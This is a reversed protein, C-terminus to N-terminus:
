DGVVRGPRAVHARQSASDHPRSEALVDEDTRRSRRIDALHREREIARRKCSIAGRREVKGVRRGTPRTAPALQVGQRELRVQQRQAVMSDSGRRQHSVTGADHEVGRERDGVGRWVAEDHRCCPITRQGRRETTRRERTLPENEEPRRGVRDGSKTSDGEAEVASRDGEVRRYRVVREACTASYWDSEIGAPKPIAVVLHDGGDLQGASTSHGVHGVESHGVLLRAAPRCRGVRSAARSGDSVRDDDGDIRGLGMLALAIEYSSGDATAVRLATDFSQRAEEIRGAQLLARATYRALTAAVVPTGGLNALAKAAEDAAALAAVTDGALVRVEVLRVLSDVVLDDSRLRRFGRLAEEQLQLAEDVRGQWLAIRSLGSITTLTGHPYNAAETVRRARTLLERAADLHFQLTLIEALNNDALAAGLVDGAREYYHSSSRFDDVADNTRNEGWASIGRNLFLNALGISDDLDTLLDMAAREHEARESQGLSLCCWEALLHAQALLRRDDSQEFDTLLDRCLVLCEKWEGLFNRITARALRLHGAVNPDSCSKLAKSTVVLAARYRGLKELMRTRDVAILARERDDALRAAQVLADLAPEPHGAREAAFALRRHTALLACQEAGTARQAGVVDRLLSEAIEMAGKAIAAEAAEHNWKVIREPIGSGSAHFALASVPDAIPVAEGWEEIVDGARRHVERRRRVSLGEYAAVRVMDHRFRVSGDDIVVLDGLERQWTEPAVLDVRDLVRSALSRTMTSGLVSADRILERGSVPLQDIRAALVREVTEPFAEGSHTSTSAVSRALEILYLPNGAASARLRSLTADSAASAPLERLLLQDAFESDIASLEITTASAPSWGETRRTVILSLHTGMLGILVDVLARSAEDIWHVDEFVIVAGPGALALVLEAVALRLRDSRFAIDLAEVEATM